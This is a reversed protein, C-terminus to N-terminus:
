GNTVQEFGEIQVGKEVKDIIWTNDNPRIGYRAKDAKSPRHYRYGAEAMIQKGYVAWAKKAKYKDYIRTVQAVVKSRTTYGKRTSTKIIAQKMAENVEASKEPM